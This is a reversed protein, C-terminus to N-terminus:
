NFKKGSNQINYYEDLVDGYLHVFATGNRVAVVSM